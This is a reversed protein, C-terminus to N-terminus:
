AGESPKGWTHAGGWDVLVVPEDGIVWADHGPPLVSVEGPGVEFEDGDAMRVHLTGSAQYQFHPAECLETGAVPKVHQSWRWGPQLTYRGVEGGGIKIIEGKGSPFERVEDPM